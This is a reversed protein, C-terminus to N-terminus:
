PFFVNLLFSFDGRCVNTDSNFRLYGQFTVMLAVETHWHWIVHFDVPIHHGGKDLCKSKRGREWYGSAIRSGQKCPSCTARVGPVWCFPCQDQNSGPHIIPSSEM